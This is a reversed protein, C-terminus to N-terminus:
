IKSLYMAQVARDLIIKKYFGSEVLMRFEEITIETTEKFLDTEVTNLVDNISEENKDSLYMFNPIKQLVSIAKDKITNIINKEKKGGKVKDQPKFTKGEGISSKALEFLKKQKEAGAVSSLVDIISENISNVNISFPSSWKKHAFEPKTGQEIIDDITVPVLKNDKCSLVEMVELFERLSDITKGESKTLIESYDYAMQLARNPNFDFIFCDEKKGEEFSTQPRFGTQWYTQVASLDSLMFVADWEKVTVATNLKGCSITITRKKSRLIMDRVNELTDGPIGENDGAAVFIEFGNGFFWHNRLLETLAKAHKIRSVYWFTHKLKNAFRNNNFPSNYERPSEAALNDLWREVAKANNLVKGDDSSFFKNLTLGEEENYYKALKEADEGLCYTLLVLKPLWRYVDSKWGRKEEEKRKNQENNYSWTFTQEETYSGEQLLEIPTGSMVLRKTYNLSNLLDQSKDTGFGFHVEDIIILDYYENKVNVWKAKTDEDVDKGLIDQFSGFLVIHSDDKFNIPNDKSFDRAEIFTYEDFDIHGNLDEFWADIAAPKWTLILTKHVGLKKMLQYATFTKGFRMKCNFLFDDGGSMFYKYAKDVAEAQESRMPFSHPRSVGTLLENIASEVVSIDCEFWERKKRIRLIDNRKLISHIQYDRYEFPIEWEGHIDLEEPSATRDQEAVRDAALRKTDGVKLWTIDGHFKRYEYYSNSSYAYIIRKKEEM